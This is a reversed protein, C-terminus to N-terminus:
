RIKKGEDNDDGSDNPSSMPSPSRKRKATTLISKTARVMRKTGNVPEGIKVQRDMVADDLSSSTSASVEDGLISKDTMSDQPSSSSLFPIGNDSSSSASSGSVGPKKMPENTEDTQDSSSTSSGTVGNELVDAAETRVTDKELSSSPLSSSEGNEADILLRQSSTDESPSGPSQLTKADECNEKSSPEIEDSQDKAPDEELRDTNAKEGVEETKPADHHNTEDTSYQSTVESADTIASTEEESPTAPTVVTPSNDTPPTATIAAM